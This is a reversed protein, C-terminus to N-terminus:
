LTRIKFWKEGRRENEGVLLATAMREVEDHDAIMPYCDEISQELRNYVVELAASDASVVYVTGDHCAAINMAAEPRNATKIDSWSVLGNGPHNHIYVVAEGYNEIQVLEVATLGSKHPVPTHEFSDTILDGTRYSVVSIRENLTCDTDQFIRQVERYARERTNKPLDLSQFKAHYAYGNVAERKVSGPLDSTKGPMYVEAVRM